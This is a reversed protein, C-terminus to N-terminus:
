KYKAEQSLKSWEKQYQRDNNTQLEQWIKNDLAPMYNLNILIRRDKDTCTVGGHPLNSPFVLLRNEINEIKEGSTLYTYGNTTNIYFIATLSGPISTDIHSSTYHPEHTIHNLNAKIRIVSQPQIENLLPYLIEFREPYTKLMGNVYFLHVFQHEGDGDTAGECWFWEFTNSMMTRKLLDFDNQNLFNDIVVFKSM